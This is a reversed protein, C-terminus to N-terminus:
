SNAKVRAGSKLNEPPNLVVRDGPALGSRVEVLQGTLSGTEVPTEVARADRVVFVTSRGERKVVAASPVALRPAATEPLPEALFAVKASMEPLVREDRDLFRIKTLVTAKARDATPVITEVTGRYPRSPFADLTIECPSGITVQDLNRESVDAEVLLSGMDAIRVVAAKATASSGFPAVIEGVDANKSLVTGDFPARIITNDVEIEASRVAATASKIAAEASVVGSQARKHRAEIVDFESASVLHEDLLRRKRDYDLRAEDAATRAQVLAADAVALNARAQDVRAAVDASEIRAVIQGTKVRDGPEAYLGILRGTAKSAVDAQRQAVVYGSANLRTSTQSPSVSTVLATEVAIASTGWSRALWAGLALIVVVAGWLWARRAVRRPEQRHEDSRDIKLASLDARTSEVM